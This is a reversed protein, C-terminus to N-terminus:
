YASTNTGTDPHQGNVGEQQTTATRRAKRKQYDDVLEIWRSPYQDNATVEMYWKNAAQANTIPTGTTPDVENPYRAIPNNWLLDEEAPPLKVSDYPKTKSARDKIDQSVSQMAEVLQNRVADFPNDETRAM